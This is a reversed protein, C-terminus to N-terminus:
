EIVPIPEATRQINAAAHSIQDDTVYFARFNFTENTESDRMFGVGQEHMTIAHAAPVPEGSGLALALRTQDESRLRLVIQRTFLDRAPFSEKTPDQLAAFVLYGAARGQALVTKLKGMFVGLRKSDMQQQFAAAEDILLLYLPSDPTPKHSRLGRTMMDNKRKELGELMEDLLTEARDLTYATEEFITAGFGFEMGGKLDIGMIKVSGNEIQPLLGLVLSWLVSGKGAGSAGVLLTHGGTLSLMAPVLLYGSDIDFVQQLGICVRHPAEPQPSAPDFTLAAIKPPEETMFVARYSNAGLSFLEVARAGVVHVNDTLHARLKPESWGRGLGGLNWVITGNDSTRAEGATTDVTEETALGLWLAFDRGRAQAKRTQQRGIDGLVPSISRAFAKLRSFRHPATAFFLAFCALSLVAYPSWAPGNYGLICFAAIWVITIGIHRFVTRVLSFLLRFLGGILVGLFSPEESQRNTSPSSSM